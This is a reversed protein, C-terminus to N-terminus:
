VRRFAIKCASQCFVVGDAVAFHEGAHVILVGHQSVAYFFIDDQQLPSLPVAKGIQDIGATQRSFDAAVGQVQILRPCIRLLLGDKHHLSRLHHVAGLLNTKADAHGHLLLSIQQQHRHRRIFLPEGRRLSHIGHTYVGRGDLHGAAGDAHGARLLSTGIGYDAVILVGKHAIVITNGGAGIRSKAAAVKVASGIKGYVIVEIGQQGLRFDHRGRELYCLLCSPALALAFETNVAHFFGPLHPAKGPVILHVIGMTEQIGLIGAGDSPLRDGIVHCLFDTGPDVAHFFVMTKDHFGLHLRRILFLCCRPDLHLALHQIVAGGGLVGGFQDQGPGPFQRIQIGQAQVIGSDLNVGNHLSFPIFGGVCQPNHGM